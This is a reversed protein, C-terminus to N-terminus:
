YLEIGNVTLISFLLDLLPNEDTREGYKPDISYFYKEAVESCFEYVDKIGTQLDLFNDNIMQQIGNYNPPKLGWKSITLDSM